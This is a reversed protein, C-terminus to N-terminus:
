ALLFEDVGLGRAGDGPQLAELAPRLELVQAAELAV